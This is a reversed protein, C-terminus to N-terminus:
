ATPAEDAQFKVAGRPKARVLKQRRAHRVMAEFCADATGAAKDGPRKAGLADGAPMTRRISEWTASNVPQENIPMATLTTPGREECQRPKTRIIPKEVMVPVGRVFLGTELFVM